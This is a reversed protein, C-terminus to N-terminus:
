ISCTFNIKFLLIIFLLKFFIKLIIKHAHISFYGIDALISLYYFTIILIIILLKTYLINLTFFLYIFLQLHLPIELFYLSTGFMVENCFFSELAEDVGLVLSDFTVLFGLDQSHTSVYRM